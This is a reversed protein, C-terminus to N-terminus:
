NWIKLLLLNGYTWMLREKREKLSLNIGQSSSSSYLDIIFAKNLIIYQLIQSNDNIEIAVTKYYM